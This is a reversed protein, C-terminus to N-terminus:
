RVSVFIRRKALRTGADILVNEALYVNFAHPPFGSLQWVGPALCKM